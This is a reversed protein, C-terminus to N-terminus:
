KLKHIIAAVIALIIFFQIWWCLGGLEIFDCLIPYTSTVYWALVLGIILGIVSVLSGALFGLIGKM